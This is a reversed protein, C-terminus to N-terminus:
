SSPAKAALIQIQWDDEQQKLTVSCLTTQRFELGAKALPFHALLDIDFRFEQSQGREFWGIPKYDPTLSSIPQPEVALPRFYFTRSQVSTIALGEVQHRMERQGQFRVRQAEALLAWQQARFALQQLIVATQVAQAAAIAYPVGSSLAHQLANDAATRQTRLTTARANMRILKRLPKKLEAQLRSAQHICFAQALSKRKLIYLSAGVVTCLSALFPALALLSVLAFGQNSAHAQPNANQAGRNKTPALAM